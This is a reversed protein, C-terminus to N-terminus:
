FFVNVPTTPPEITFPILVEPLAHNCCVRLNIHYGAAYVAPSTLRGEEDYDAYQKVIDGVIVISIKESTSAIDQVAKSSDYPDTVVRGTEPDTRDVTLGAHQMVSTAESKSAFKLYYDKFHRDNMTYHEVPGQPIENEFNEM